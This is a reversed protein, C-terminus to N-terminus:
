TLPRLVTTYNFKWWVQCVADNLITESIWLSFVESKKIKTHKLNHLWMLDGDNGVQSLGVFVCTDLFRECVSLTSQNLPWLIQIKM